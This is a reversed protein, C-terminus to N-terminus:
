SYASKSSKRNKKHNEKDLENNEELNFIIDEPTVKNCIFHVSSIIYYLTILICIGMCIHKLWILYPPFTATLVTILTGM